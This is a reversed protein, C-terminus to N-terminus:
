PREADRQHRAFAARSSRESDRDLGAAPDGGADRCGVAGGRNRRGHRLPGARVVQHHRSVHQRHLHFSAAHQRARLDGLRCDIERPQRTQRRRRHGARNEAVVAGDGMGGVELCEGLAVVERANRDFQQHAIAQAELRQDSPRRARPNLSGDALELGDRVAALDIGVLV